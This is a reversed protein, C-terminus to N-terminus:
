RCTGAFNFVQPAEFFLSFRLLKHSYTLCRAPRTATAFKARASPSSETTLAGIDEPTTVTVATGLSGLAHVTNQALEVVCFSPEFLFRTFMGTAFQRHLVTIGGSECISAFRGFDAYRAAPTRMQPSSEMHMVAVVVFIILFILILFILQIVAFQDRRSHYL